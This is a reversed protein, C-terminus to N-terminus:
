KPANSASSHFVFYSSFPRIESASIPNRITISPRNEHVNDRARIARLEGLDATKHEAARYIDALGGAYTTKIPNSRMNIGIVRDLRRLDRNM